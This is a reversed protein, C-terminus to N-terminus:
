RAGKHSRDRSRHRPRHLEPASSRDRTPRSGHRNEKLVLNDVHRALVPDGDHTLSGDMVADYFSQWASVTWAVSSTFLVGHGATGRGRARGHDGALPLLRLRGRARRVKRCAEVIAATVDKIPVRWHEDDTPQEWLDVVFNLGSRGPFDPQFPLLGEVRKTEDSARQDLTDMLVTATGSWETRPDMFSVLEAAVKSAGLTLANGEARNDVYAKMFSGQELGLSEEAAVMWAAADAMRQYGHEADAPKTPAFGCGQPALVEVRQANRERDVARFTHGPEGGEGM